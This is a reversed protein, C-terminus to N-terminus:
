KDQYFESLGAENILWEWQFKKAMHCFFSATDDDKLKNAVQIIHEAKLEKQCGRNFIDMAEKRKPHQELKM